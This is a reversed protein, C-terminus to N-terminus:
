TNTGVCYQCLNTQGSKSSWIFPIVTRKHTIEKVWCAQTIWGHQMFWNKESQLNINYSYVVVLSNMRNHHANLNNGTPTNPIFSSCVKKNHNQPFYRMKTPYLLIEPERPMCINLTVLYQWVNELTTKGSLSTGTTYFTWNNRIRVLLRVKDTM